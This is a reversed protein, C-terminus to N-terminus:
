KGKPLLFLSIGNPEEKVGQSKGKDALTQEIGKLKEVVKEAFIRERGRLRVAFRVTYGDDLFEEAKQVKLALDHDWITYSMKVEKSWKSKQNKKKEKDDKQKEYMYKGYDVIKATCIMEVPNYALQVLDLWQSSARRLAEDRSLVGLKEGQEDILLVKPAKIMENIYTMRADKAWWMAPRGWSQPRYPQWAPRSQTSNGTWMPRTGTWAPRVGTSTPRAGTWTSGAPRSTQWAPRSTSSGTGSGQPRSQQVYPKKEIPSM